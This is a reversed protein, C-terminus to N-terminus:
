CLCITIIEIFFISLYMCLYLYLILSQRPKAVTFIMKRADKRLCLMESENILVCVKFIFFLFIMKKKKKELKIFSDAGGM